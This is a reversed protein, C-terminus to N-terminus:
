SSLLEVAAKLPLATMRVSLYEANNQADRFCCLLTRKEGFRVNLDHFNASISPGSEALLPRRLRVSNIPLM